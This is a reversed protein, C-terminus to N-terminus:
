KSRDEEQERGIKEIKEESERLIGRCHRILKMGEEYQDISDQLPMQGSEIKGVIETLRDVAKEFPLEELRQEQAKKKEAM